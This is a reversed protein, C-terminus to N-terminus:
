LRMQRYAEYVIKLLEDYYSDPVLKTDEKAYFYVVNDVVEINVNFPARELQEMFAPHLLEFSTVAEASSAYVDYKRNFDGWEMSIKQLGRGGLVDFGITRSLWNGAKRRVVIQGYEKPVMMQAVLYVELSNSAPQSSYTYLQVLYQQAYMGIVHNNIDATQLSAKDFITGRKPVLLRGMDLSFYMNNQQAFRELAENHAWEAETAQQIGDLLWSDGQRCFQWFETFSSNESYLLDQSNTDILRDTTRATIGITVRDADAGPHDALDVVMVEEIIPNEVRNARHLQQLAGILLTAHRHYSPTLYAQMAAVNQESWDAQYRVFTERAMTQLREEGWAADQQAAVNLSSATQKSQKLKGFWGFLGAGMGALAAFAALGGFFGGLVTVLIFGYVLAVVGGVISLIAATASYKRNMRRIAAGLAHMPLYGIAVIFGDGGGDGSSSGGGGARAFVAISPLLDGITQPLM